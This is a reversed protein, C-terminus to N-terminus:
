LLCNFIPGSLVDGPYHLRASIFILVIFLLFYNKFSWLYPLKEEDIYPSRKKFMLSNIFLLTM